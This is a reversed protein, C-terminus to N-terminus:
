THTPGFIPSLFLLAQPTCHQFGLRPWKRLHARHRPPRRNNVTPSGCSCPGYFCFTHSLRARELTGSIRYISCRSPLADISKFTGEEWNWDFPAFIENQTQIICEPDEFIHIQLQTHRHISKMIYWTLYAEFGPLTYILTRVIRRPLVIGTFLLLLRFSTPPLFSCPRVLVGSDIPM